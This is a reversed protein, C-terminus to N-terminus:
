VRNVLTLLITWVKIARVSWWISFFCFSYCFYTMTIFSYNMSLSSKNEPTPCVLDVRSSFFTLRDWLSTVYPFELFCLLPGSFLSLACFCFPAVLFIVLSVSCLVFAACLRGALPEFYPDYPDRSVMRLGSVQDSMTLPIRQSASLLRFLVIM